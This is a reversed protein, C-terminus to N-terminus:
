LLFRRGPHSEKLEDNNEDRTTAKKTIKKNGLDRNLWDCHVCSVAIHTWLVM